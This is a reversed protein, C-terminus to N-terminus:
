GCGPALVGPAVVVDVGHLAQEMIESVPEVGEFSDALSVELEECGDELEVVVV